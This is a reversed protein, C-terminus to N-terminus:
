HNETWFLVGASRSLVQEALGRAAVHGEIVTKKPRNEPARFIRDGIENRNEFLWALVVADFHVPNQELDNPV